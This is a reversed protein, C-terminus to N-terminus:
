ILQLRQAVGERDSGGSDLGRPRNALCKAPASLDELIEVAAFAAGGGDESAGSITRSRYFFKGCHSTNWTRGKHVPSVKLSSFNIM